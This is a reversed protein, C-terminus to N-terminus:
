FFAAIGSCVACVVTIWLYVVVLIPIDVVYRLKCVEKTLRVLRIVRDQM